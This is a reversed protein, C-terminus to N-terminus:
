EREMVIGTIVAMQEWNEDTIAPDIVAAALGLALVAVPNETHFKAQERVYRALTSKFESRSQGGFPKAEPKTAFNSHCEDCRFVIVGQEPNMRTDSIPTIYQTHGNPCSVAEVMGAMAARQEISHRALKCVQLQCSEFDETGKPRTGHHNSVHGTKAQDLIVEVFWDVSPSENMMRKIQSDQM